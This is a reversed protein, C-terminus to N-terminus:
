AEIFDTLTLNELPLKAFGSKYRPHKEL